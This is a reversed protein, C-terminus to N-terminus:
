CGAAARQLRGARRAHLGRGVADDVQGDEVAPPVLAPGAVVAPRDAAALGVGVLPGLVPGVGQVEVADELLLHDRAVVLAVRVAQGSCHSSSIFREMAVCGRATRSSASAGRTCRAATGARRRPRGPRRPPRLPADHVSAPQGPGCGARRGPRVRWGGPLVRPAACRARGRGGCGGAPRCSRSPRRAVDVVPRGASARRAPAGGRRGGRGEVVRARQQVPQPASRGSNM